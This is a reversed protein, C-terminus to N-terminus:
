LWIVSHVDGEKVTAMKLTLSVPASSIIGKSCRVKNYKAIWSRFFHMKKQKPQSMSDAAAAGLQKYVARELEWPTEYHCIKQHRM